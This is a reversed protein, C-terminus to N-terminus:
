EFGMRHQPNIQREASTDTAVKGKGQEPALHRRLNVRIEVGRECSQLNSMIRVPTCLEYKAAM